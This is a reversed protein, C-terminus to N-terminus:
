QANVYAPNRELNPKILVTSQDLAESFKEQAFLAMPAFIIAVMMM